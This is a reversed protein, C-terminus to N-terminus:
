DSPIRDLLKVTSKAVEAGKEVRKTAIILIQFTTANRM